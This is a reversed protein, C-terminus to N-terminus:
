SPQKGGARDNSQQNRFCRAYVDDIEKGSERKRNRAVKEERSDSDPLPDKKAKHRKLDRNMVQMKKVKSPNM